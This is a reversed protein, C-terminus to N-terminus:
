KTNNPSRLWDVTLDAAHRIETMWCTFIIATAVYEPWSYVITGAGWMTLLIGFVVLLLIPPWTRNVWACVAFFLSVSSFFTAAFPYHMSNPSVAVQLGILGIATGLWLLRAILGVFVDRFRWPFVRLWLVATVGIFMARTEPTSTELNSSIDVLGSNMYISLLAATYITLPFINVLVWECSPAVIFQQTGGTTPSYVYPPVPGTGWM